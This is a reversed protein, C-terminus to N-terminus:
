KTALLIEETVPTNQARLEKELKSENLTYVTRSGELKLAELFYRDGYRHFVMAYSAAAKKSMGQSATAFLNTRANHNTIVLVSGAPDVRQISCEGAPVVANAVMFKFPVQAAIRDSDQLQAVAIVPVLLIMLVSIWKAYKM